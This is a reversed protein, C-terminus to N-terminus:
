QSSAYVPKNLAPLLVVWTSGPVLEVDKGSKSKFITRATRSAKTWTIEEQTGSNYLYGAGTGVVEYYNHAHEDLSREEKVLQVIINKAELQKDVTFDIHKEGGNERLYTNKTADYKWVVDYSAYGKWFSYSVDGSSSLSKDTKTFKWSTFNKNWATNNAKTVNTLGRNAAVNWMEETSCYMTHETDRVEGTREYERRCVKYSLSFQSLDGWTGKNNWGWGQMLELAQVKKNTTCPGGPTAASCNAGGVHAYLPYDAYESAVNAFYVRASRVPGVDYKEPSGRLVDCYYVGMFRTIGGEAIGEYVIDANSLGSQPRSDLSNEIMVTLPRRQEWIAREETTHMTGNVPCVETKPGDYVLIGEPVETPIATPEGPNNKTIVNNKVVSTLTSLGYGIGLAICLIGLYASIQTLRSNM